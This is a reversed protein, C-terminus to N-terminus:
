NSSQPLVRRAPVPRHEATPQASGRKAVVDEGAQRAGGPCAGPQPRGDTFHTSAPGRLRAALVAMDVTIPQDSGVLALDGMRVIYPFVARFTRETRESALWQVYIGGPNLRGRVQRFFEVSFLLGARSSHPYLADAEIVDYLSEDTFLM